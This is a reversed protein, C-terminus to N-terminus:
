IPEKRPDRPDYFKLASGSSPGPTRISIPRTRFFNSVAEELLESLEREWHGHGDLENVRDLLANDVPVIMYGKGHPPDPLQHLGRKGNRVVEAFIRGAM